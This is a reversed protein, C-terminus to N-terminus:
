GAVSVKSDVKLCSVGVMLSFYQNNAYTFLLVIDDDAFDLSSVCLEFDLSLLDKNWWCRGFSINRRWCM